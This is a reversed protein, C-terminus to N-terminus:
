QSELLLTRVCVCRVYQCWGTTLMLTLLQTRMDHRRPQLVAPLVRILNALENGAWISNAQPLLFDIQVRRATGSSRVFVVDRSMGACRNYSAHELFRTPRTICM